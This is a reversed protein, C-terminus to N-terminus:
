AGGLDLPLQDVSVVRPPPATFRRLERRTQTLLNKQAVILQRQTRALEAQARTLLKSNDAKLAAEMRNFEAVFGEKWRAAESGTFGMCLWMFGDRSIRYMVQAKGRSDIYPSAEFNLRSFQPSCDLRSITRLVNDHRKGFFEAIVLSTTTLHDGSLSVIPEAHAPTPTTVIANM